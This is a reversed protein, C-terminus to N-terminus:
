FYNSRNRCENRISPALGNLWEFARNPINPIRFQYESEHIHERESRRRQGTNHVYTMAYNVLSFWIEALPRCVFSITLNMFHKKM